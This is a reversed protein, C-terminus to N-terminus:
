WGQRVLELAWKKGSANGIGTVGTDSTPSYHVVLAYAGLDYGLSLLHDANSRSNDGFSANGTYRFFTRPNGKPDRFWPLMATLSVSGYLSKEKINYSVYNSTQWANYRSGSIDMSLRQTTETSADKQTSSSSGLAYSIATSFEPTLSRRLSLGADFYSNYFGEGEHSIDGSMNTSLQWGLVKATPLGVNARIGQYFNQKESGLPTATSPQVVSHTFGAYPSFGVSVGSKGLNFQPLSANIESSSDQSTDFAMWNTTFNLPVNNITESATMGLSKSYPTDGSYRNYGGHFTLQASGLQQSHDWNVSRTSHNLDDFSIGGSGTDGLLYEENVAVQFGSNNRYYQSGRTVERLHVVGLNNADAAFYIPFDVNLGGDTALSIKTNFLMGADSSRLDLVHYPLSMLKRKFNDLYYKPNKFQVMENPFITVRDSVIWTQTPRPDIATYDAVQAAENEQTTMDPLSVHLFHIDPNMAAINAYNANVNLVLKRGSITKTGATITVEDQATLINTRLDYQLRNAAVTYQSTVFEVKGMVDIVRQDFSYDVSEANIVYRPRKEVKTANSNQGLFEVTKSVSANGATITVFAQGPKDTNELLVSVQGRQTYAVAPITGLTTIFRVPTGDPAPASTSDLVRVLISIHNDGGFVIRPPDADVVLHLDITWAAIGLMLTAAIIALRFVM